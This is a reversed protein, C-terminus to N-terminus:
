ANHRRYREAKVEVARLFRRTSWDRRTAQLYARFFLRCIRYSFGERRASHLLSALDKVIWRRRLFTMVRGVDILRLTDAYLLVHYVNLDRHCLRADHLRAVYSALRLAHQDLRGTPVGQGEWDDAQFGPAGELVVYSGHYHFGWEVPLVTPIGLATLRRANEWERRAPNAWPWHFFWKLFYTQGEHV